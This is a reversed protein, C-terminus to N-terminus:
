PTVQYYDAPDHGGFMNNVAIFDKGSFMAPDGKGTQVKALLKADTDFERFNYGHGADGDLFDLQKNYIFDLM